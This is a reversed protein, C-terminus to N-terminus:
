KRAAFGFWLHRCTICMTVGDGTHQLLFKVSFIQGCPRIHVAAECYLLDQYMHNTRMRRSLVKYDYVYQSYATCLKSYNENASDLM